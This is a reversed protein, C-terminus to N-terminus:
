DAAKAWQKRDIFGRATDLRAYPDIEALASIYAWLKNWDARESKSLTSLIEESRLPAVDADDLWGRALNINEAGVTKLQVAELGALAKKRWPTKQNADLAAADAKGFGALAASFGAQAQEQLSLAAKRTLLDDYVRAAALPSRRHRYLWDALLRQTATNRPMQ